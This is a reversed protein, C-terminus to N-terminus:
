VGADSEWKVSFNVVLFSCNCSSRLTMVRVYRTSKEIESQRVCSAVHELHENHEQWEEEQKVVEELDRRLADCYREQYERDRMLRAEECHYKDLAELTQNHVRLSQSTVKECVGEFKEFDQELEKIRRKVDSLTVVNREELLKLTLAYTSAESSKTELDAVGEELKQKQKLLEMNLAINEPVGSLLTLNERNDDRLQTVIAKKQEVLARQKNLEAALKAMLKTYAEQGQPASPKPPLIYSNLTKKSSVVGYRMYAKSMSHTLNSESEESSSPSVPRAISSTPRNRREM